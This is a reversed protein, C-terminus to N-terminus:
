REIGQPRSPEDRALRDRNGRGRRGNCEADGAAAGSWGRWDVMELAWILM